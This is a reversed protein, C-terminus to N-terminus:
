QCHNRVRRALAALDQLSAPKRMYIPRTYPEARSYKTTTGRLEAFDKMEEVGELAMVTGEIEVADMGSPEMPDIESPLRKFLLKVHGNTLDFSALRGFFSNGYPSKDLTRPWILYGDDSSLLVMRFYLRTEFDLAEWTGLMTEKHKAPESVYTNAAAALASVLLATLALRM